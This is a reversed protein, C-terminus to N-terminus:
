TNTERDKKMSAKRNTEKKNWKNQKRWKNRKRENEITNTMGRKWKKPYWEYTQNVVTTPNLWAEVFKLSKFFFFYKEEAWECSYLDSLTSTVINGNEFQM